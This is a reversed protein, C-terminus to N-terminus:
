REGGTAGAEEEQSPAPWAELLRTAIRRALKGDGISSSRHNVLIAVAFDEDPYVILISKAGRQSGSHMLWTRGAADEGLRFGFTYNSRGGSDTRQPTRLLTRMEEALLREDCLARSFRVLDTATSLYGGGPWKYGIDERPVEVRELPGAKEYLAAVEGHDTGFEEPVTDVMGLPACVEAALFERFDRGAAGQVVAGLLNFGFTSYHYKEGPAAVLPDAAFIALSDVVDGLAKEEFPYNRDYHRVGGLHGGLQRSSIPPHEAPWSAVYDRVPADLDLTGAQVLVLAAVATLSKSISAIRYRTTVTAPVEEDVDALGFAFAHLEDGRRVAFSIGPAEPLIEERVMEAAARVAAPAPPPMAPATAAPAPAADQSMLALMLTALMSGHHRMRRPAPVTQTRLGVRSEWQGLLRHILRNGARATNGEGSNGEKEEGGAAGALGLGGDTGFRAVGGFDQAERRDGVLVAGLQALLVPADGFVEALLEPDRHFVDRGRVVAGGDLGEDVAVDLQGPEAAQGAHLRAGADVARMRDGLALDIWLVLRVEDGVLVGAQLGPGSKGIAM